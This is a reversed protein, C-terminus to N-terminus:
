KSQRKRVEIPIVTDDRIEAFLAQRARSIRSMVTGRPIGLADGAEDYKLGAIDILAIIERQPPTLRGFAAQVAILNIREEHIRAWDGDPVARDAEDLDATVVHRRRTRDIWANRLIRFLWVRFATEDPPVRAAALAKLAGEQVLDRAEEDDRTLALAYGYLGKLHGKLRYRHTENM